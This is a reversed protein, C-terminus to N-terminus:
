GFCFEPPSISNATMLDALKRLAWEYDPATEGEILVQAIHITTNMGTVGDINLPPINFRNTRYTCDMMIV